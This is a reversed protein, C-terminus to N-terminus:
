KVVQLKAVEAGGTRKNELRVFYTGPPLGFVEVDYFNSGPAVRVHQGSVLRGGLSHLTLYADFASQSEYAVEAM